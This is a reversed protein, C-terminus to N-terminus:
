RAGNASMVCISTACSKQGKAGVGEALLRARAEEDMASLESELSALDHREGQSTVSRSFDHMLDVMLCGLASTVGPWPPVIM